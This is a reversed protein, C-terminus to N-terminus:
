PSSQVGARRDSVSLLAKRLPVTLLKEVPIRWFGFLLRRSTQRPHQLLNALRPSWWYNISMNQDIGWVAHWWYVPIFLMDGPGLELLARDAHAWAPFRTLDPSLVNVQSFHNAAYNFPFPYLRAIERPPCLIVQKRGRIQALFNNAGDYHLPTFNNGPGLWFGVRFTVYKDEDVFPPFRVDPWLEPLATRIPLLSAYLQGDSIAAGALQDIYEAVKMPPKESLGKKPDDLVRRPGYAHAKHKSLPVTRAGVKETLYDNTWRELAPWGEMAGSIIVPRQPFLFREEFERRSPRDVRPVEFTTKVDDLVAGGGVPHRYAQVRM